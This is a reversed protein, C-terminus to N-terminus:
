IAFMGIKLWNYDLNARKRYFDPTKESGHVNKGSVTGPNGSLVAPGREGPFHYVGPVAMRIGSRRLDIEARDYFYDDRVGPHLVAGGYFFCVDFAGHFLGYDGGPFLSVAELFEM